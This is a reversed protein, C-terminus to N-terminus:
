GRGRLQVMEDDVNELGFLDIAARAAAKVELSCSSRLFGKAVNAALLRDDEFGSESDYLLGLLTYPMARKGLRRNGGFANQEFSWQAHSLAKAFQEQDFNEKGELFKVWFERAAEFCEAVLEDKHLLAKIAEIM